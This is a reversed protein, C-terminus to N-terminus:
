GSVGLLGWLCSRLALASTCSLAACPVLSGQRPNLVLRGLVLSLTVKDVPLSQVFNVNSCVVVFGRDVHFALHSAV